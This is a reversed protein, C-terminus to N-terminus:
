LLTWSGDDNNEGSSFSAYDPVDSITISLQETGDTNMLQSSLDLTISADGEFGFADKVQLHPTEPPNFLLVAQYVEATLNDLTLADDTASTLSSSAEAEYNAVQTELLTIDVEKQVVDSVLEAIETIYEEALAEFSEADEKAKANEQTKLEGAEKDAM